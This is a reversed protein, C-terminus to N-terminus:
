QQQEDEVGQNNQKIIEKTRREWNQQDNQYHEVLVTFYKEKFEAIKKKNVVVLVSTMLQSGHSNVFYKEDIKKEYVLDSL